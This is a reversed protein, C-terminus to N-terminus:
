SKSTSMAEDVNAAVFGALVFAVGVMYPLSFRIGRFFYDTVVSLPLTLSLALTALGPTTLAVSRAWLYDSLVTGILANVLLLGVVRADPVEFLEVGTWHLVFFFPWVSVAVAAGLYGFMMAMSAKEEDPIQKKLQMAYLGYLFAAFVSVLDGVVSDRGGTKKDYMSIVAVGLMTMCASALKVLSFREVGMVAGLALGFLSSLTSITSSSAVSTGKLGVNFTYNSLFFLPALVLAAGRVEEANYTTAQRLSSNNPAGDGNGAEVDSESNSIGEYEAQCAPPAFLTRRWSSSFLFGCMYVSFLSTSLYTLFFPKSFSSAGFIFQILEASGVWIVAVVGILALGFAHKRPAVPVPVSGLQQAAQQGVTNPPVTM